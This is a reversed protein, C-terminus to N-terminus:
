NARKEAFHEYVCSLKIEPILSTSTSLYVDINGIWPIYM